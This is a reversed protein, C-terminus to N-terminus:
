IGREEALWQAATHALDREIDTPGRGPRFFNVETPGAYQGGALDHHQLHVHDLENGVSDRLQLLASILMNLERKDGFWVNVHLCQRNGGFRVDARIVPSMEQAM